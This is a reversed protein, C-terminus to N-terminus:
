KLKEPHKRETVKKCIYTLKSFTEVDKTPGTIICHKEYTSPLKSDKETFDFCYEQSNLMDYDAEIFVGRNYKKTITDVMESVTCTNGNSIKAVGNKGLQVTTLQRSEIQAVYILQEITQLVFKDVDRKDVENHFIINVAIGNSHFRCYASQNDLEYHTNDQKKYERKAYTVHSEFYCKLANLIGSYRKIYMDSGLKVFTKQSKSIKENAVILCAFDGSLGTDINLKEGYIPIESPYNKQNKKKDLLVVINYERYNTGDPIGFLESLKKEYTTKLNAM